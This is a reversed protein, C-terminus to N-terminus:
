EANDRKQAQQRHLFNYCGNGIDEWLKIGKNSYLQRVCSLYQCSRVTFSSFQETLLISQRNVPRVANPKRRVFAPITIKAMPGLNAKFDAWVRETHVSTRKKMSSGAAPHPSRESKTTTRTFFTYLKVEMHQVRQAGRHTPKSCCVAWLAVCCTNPWPRHM